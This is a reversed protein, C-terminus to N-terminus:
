CFCHNKAIAVLYLSQAWALPSNENHIFSNSYYLEPLEGKMNIASRAKHLYFVYKNSVDKYIIALWPFGLTWEAEAGNNYYLDGPYRIVGKERVLLTEVNYLIVQKMQEDVVNYPYILSLLAMDTEKTVSERPLLKKLSARGKEILEKSVVVIQSVKQLGAVCAGISSAHVEEKEEWMGNDSDKWYEIAELYFVLDQILGVDDPTRLVRIGKEELEGIRFLLAGIADNQKNGWEEHIEEGTLPEYRAHIYRYSHKPIPQLVMWKIKYRHKHLVDLLARLARVAAGICSAKELGFTAYVTDRIWARHYGTKVVPAASILGTSHQLGTLLQLPEM